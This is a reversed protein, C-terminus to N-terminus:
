LKNFSNWLTLSKFGAGIVPPKKNLISDVLSTIEMYSQSDDCSDKVINNVKLLHITSRWRNSNIEGFKEISFGPTRNLDLIVKLRLLVSTSDTAIEGYTELLKASIEPEKLAYRWGKRTAKVFNTVIKPNTNIFKDSTFVVQGYPDVDYEIPKTLRVKLGISKSKIPGWNMQVPIVDVKGAIFEELGNGISVFRFDDTNLGLKRAVSNFM